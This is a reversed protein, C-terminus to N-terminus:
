DVLNVMFFRPIKKRYLTKNRMIDKFDSNRKISIMYDTRLILACESQNFM